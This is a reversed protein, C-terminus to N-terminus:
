TQYFTNRWDEDYKGLDKPLNEESMRWNNIKENVRNGEEYTLDNIKDLAIPNDRFTYDIAKRIDINLKDAKCYREIFDIQTKTIKREGEAADEGAQEAKKLDREEATNIGRLCLAARLARGTAKTEATALPHNLYPAQSNNHSCEASGTVIRKYTREGNSIGMFGLNNDHGFSLYVTVAAYQPDVVHVKIDTQFAGYMKTAIRRLGDTTPLKDVLEDERLMGLIHDTWEPDGESPMPVTPVAQYIEGTIYNQPDGTPTESTTM